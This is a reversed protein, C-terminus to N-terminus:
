QARRKRRAAVPLAIFAIGLMALTSPEPTQSVQATSYTQFDQLVMKVTGQAWISQAALPSDSLVGLFVANNTGGSPVFVSCVLTSTPGLCWTSGVIAASVHMGYAYVNSALTIAVRDSSNGTAVVIDATTGSVNLTSPNGGVIGGFSTGTGGVNSLVNGSTLGSYNIIGSATFGQGILASNFATEGASGAYYSITASAPLSYFALLAFLIKNFM